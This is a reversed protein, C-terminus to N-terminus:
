AIRGSLDTKNVLYKIAMHDVFFVVQNLLIYHRFKKVTFVMAQCERETTTYNKKAPNLQRSAFAIPYEKGGERTPQCLASGVAVASADCYVHFPSEWTPPKLVPFTCLKTKLTDFAQPCEPTWEFKVAKQQLRSIPLSITAYDPILM